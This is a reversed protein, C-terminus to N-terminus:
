GLGICEACINVAKALVDVVGGNAVGLVIFLVACGFLAIRVGLIMPKENAEFFKSAKPLVKETEDSIKSARAGNKIAEKLFDTERMYSFYKIVAYVTEYVILPLLMLMYVLLAKLVEFNYEGNVAPFTNPNLLYVLPLFAELVILVASAAFLSKRLIREHMIQMRENESLASIDVRKSLNAYATKIRKPSKLKVKEEPFVIAFVAGIAVAALTIYVFIDIKGFAKGISEYTFMQAEASKYISYCSIAFLIGTIVNMVSIVIGVILHINKRQKSTINM